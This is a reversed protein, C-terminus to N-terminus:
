RYANLCSSLLFTKFGYDFAGLRQQNTGHTPSSGLAWLQNRAEEYDAWSLKGSRSYGYRFYLGAFCDAMLENNPQGARVSLLRQMHHGFEHAMWLAVAGDGFQNLVGLQQTYDFYINGGLNGTNRCYFGFSGHYGASSGCDTQREILTGNSAFNYYGVGPKTYTYGKYNLLPKWFANLDWYTHNVAGVVTTQPANLASATSAGVALVGLTAIAVLVLFRRIALTLTM